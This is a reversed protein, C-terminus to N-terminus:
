AGYICGARRGTARERSSNNGLEAATGAARTREQLRAARDYHAALWAARSERM